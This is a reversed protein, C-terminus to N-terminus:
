STAARAKDLADVIQDIDDPGTRHSIVCLRLTPRGALAVTSLWGQGSRVVHEAVAAHWRMSHEPGLADAAPDIVCIVPLPTDNIRQWGTEALRRALLEGLEVDREVQAAYGGEGAAALALFVKLGAFRRSWQVTTTYPDAIGDPDPMYSTRVAFTQAL